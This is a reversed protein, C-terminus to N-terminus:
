ACVSLANLLTLHSIFESTIQRMHGPCMHRFLWLGSQLDVTVRLEHSETGLMGHLTVAEVTCLLNCLSVTQCLHPTVCSVRGTTPGAAILLRRVLLRDM